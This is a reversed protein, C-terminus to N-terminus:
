YWVTEVYSYIFTILHISLAKQRLIEARQGLNLRM